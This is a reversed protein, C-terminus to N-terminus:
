LVGRSRWWERAGGTPWRSELCPSVDPCSGAVLDYLTKGTFMETTSQWARLDFPLLTLFLSLGNLKILHRSNRSWAKPPNWRPILLAQNRDLGDQNVDESSIGSSYYAIAFGTSLNNPLSFISFVQHSDLSLPPWRSALYIWVLSMGTGKEFNRLTADSTETGKLMSKARLHSWWWPSRECHKCRKCSRMWLDDLFAPPRKEELVFCDLDHKGKM